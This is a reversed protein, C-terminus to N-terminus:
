TNEVLDESIDELLWERGCNCIEHYSYQYQGGILRLVINEGCKCKINMSKDELINM